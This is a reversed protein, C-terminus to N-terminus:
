PKRVTIPRKSTSRNTDGDEDEVEVEWNFTGSKRNKFGLCTLDRLDEGPGVLVTRGPLADGTHDVTVRVVRKDAEIAFEIRSGKGVVGDPDFYGPKVAIMDDGGDPPPDVPPPNGVTIIDPTRAVAALAEHWRAVLPHDKGGGPRAYAFGWVGVVRANERAANIAAWQLAELGDEDRWRGNRDYAQAILVLPKGPCFDIAQQFRRATLRKVADWGNVAGPELYCEIGIWDVAQPVKGEFPQSPMLTAVIPRQPLGARKVRARAARAEDDMEQATEFEGLVLGAVRDWRDRMCAVDLESTGIFVPWRNAVAQFMEVAGSPILGNSDSYNHISLVTCNGPRDHHGYRGGVYYEGAWLPRGFDGLRIPVSTRPSDIEVKRVTLRGKDSWSAIVFERHDLVALRAGVAGADVQIAKKEDPTAFGLFMPLPRILLWGSSDRTMAWTSGAVDFVQDPGEWRDPAILISGHQPTEVFAAHVPGDGGYMITGDPGIRSVHLPIATALRGDLSGSAYISLAVNDNTEAHCVWPWCMALAGGSPQRLVGGDLSVRRADSLYAAYHGGDAVTENGADMGPDTPSTVTWLAPSWDPRDFSDDVLCEFRQARHNSLTSTWCAVGPMIWGAPMSHLGPASIQREAILRLDTTLEAVFVVATGYLVLIREGVICLHANWGNPQTPTWV